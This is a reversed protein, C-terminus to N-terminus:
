AEQKRMGLTDRHGWTTGQVQSHAAEYDLRAHCGSATAYASLPALLLLPAADNDEVRVGRGAVDWMREVWSPTSGLRSLSIPKGIEKVSSPLVGESRIEANTPAPLALRVQVDNLLASAKARGRTSHRSPPAAAARSTRQIRSTIKTTLAQTENPVM